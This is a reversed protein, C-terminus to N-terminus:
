SEEEFNSFDFDSANNYVEDLFGNKLKDQILKYRNNAAENQCGERFVVTEGEYHLESRDSYVDLHMEQNEEM